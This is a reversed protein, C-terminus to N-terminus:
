LNNLINDRYETAEELTKFFKFHRKGNTKIKVIYPNKYENRYYINHGLYPNTQETKDMAVSTRGVYIILSNDYKDRNM